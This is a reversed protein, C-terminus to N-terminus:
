SDSPNLTADREKEQEVQALMDAPRVLLLPLTTARLVRQAISGMTWQPLGGQGHTTLALLDWVDEQTARESQEV